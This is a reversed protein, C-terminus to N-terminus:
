LIARYWTQGIRRATALRGRASKGLGATLEYETAEDSAQKPKIPGKVVM